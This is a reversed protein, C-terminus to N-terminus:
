CIYAFIPWDLLVCHIICFKFRSYTQKAHFVTEKLNQDKTQDKSTTNGLKAIKAYKKGKAEM